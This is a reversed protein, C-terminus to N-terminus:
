AGAVRRAQGAWYKERLERKLVKGTPNRPLSAVFEMSRPLKYGGLRTRCFAVLDDVTPTQGDRPVVIAKVTEGWKEDPVGIVAVEAVAPHQLLVEEVERPSINEGGSVILDKIRDQISLYGAEDMAGADGTHLWGGRLTEATVEPLNWYGRMVQPGRVVIEGARGPPLPNDEEDVIRVETGLCPRGASFSLSPQESVARRHDAASLFSIASCTESMGYGQLFDCGFVAMARRLTMEAIASAGYGIMRLHPYRRQAADPMGLCAQIMTPVLVTIAIAEESLAQVVAAPNFDAHIVLCGGTAVCPFTIVAAGVTHFIPAALLWREGPAARLDADIQMLGASLTRHTHVVGKPRGTTGSTYMQYCDDDESITCEPPTTPHAAVWARYDEWGTTRPAEMAHRVATYWPLQGLDDERGTSQLADLAVFREVTPLEARSGDIAALFEPGALLVRARADAIIYAWEAPALRTNLPVPVVGAKSAAFYLLAYEISNKALVAIRDGTALGGAAFANALRNAEEWAERYTLCRNGQAAFPANPRERAQHDLYDHLRM